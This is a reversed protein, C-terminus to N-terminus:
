EALANYCFVFNESKGIIKIYDPVAKTEFQERSMFLYSNKEQVFSDYGGWQFKIVTNLEWEFILPLTEHKWWYLDYKKEDNYEYHYEYFINATQEKNNYPKIIQIIENSIRPYKNNSDITHTTLFLCHITTIILSCYFLIQPLQYKLHHFIDVTSIAGAITLPVCTPFIYWQLKTQAITFLIFISLFSILCLKDINTIKQKKILKITFNILFLILCILQIPNNFLQVLYYTFYNNKENNEIVTTTRDFLDYWFMEKFFKFGDFNFRAIAWLFIPIIACLFCTLYQWWKMKKYLQTFLWYFFIIPVLILTHWSKTLFGLAFMLGTLHLWNSNESSLILSILAIGVFLIFISDADGHRVFHHYFFSVSVSLIVISLLSAIKNTKKKLFLAIILTLILYALASFFRLGLPNYGFIKYGLMVFYFHLPPKVNWYDVEGYAYNVLYNNKKLMEFANLGHRLEDWPLIVYDGLKYFCLLALISMLLIFLPWYLKDIIKKTDM